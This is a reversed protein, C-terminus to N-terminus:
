SCGRGYWEYDLDKFITGKALAVFENEFLNQFCQWPVYCMGVPFCKSDSDFETNDCPDPQYRRVRDGCVPDKSRYPSVNSGYNGRYMRRDMFITEGKLHYHVVYAKLTTRYIM